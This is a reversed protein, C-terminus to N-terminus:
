RLSREGSEGLCTTTGVAVRHLHHAVYTTAVQPGDCLMARFLHGLVRARMGSSRDAAALIAALVARRPRPFSARIAGDPLEIGMRGAIHEMAFGFARGVRFRATRDAVVQWDVEPHAFLLAKVDQLWALRAFLHGAAHLVLFLLEDEAALVRCAHGAATQYPQARALFEESPIVVGFDAILRFHLEVPPWDRRVFTLHHQHKWRQRAAPDAEGQYGLGTLAASAAAVQGPAVMLDLDNSPRLAPDGHLRAGLVPGKLPVVDVRAAALAPLIEDLARQFCSQTLRLVAARRLLTRLIGPPLGPPGTTLAAALSGLVGSREARTLLTSWDSVTAGSQELRASAKPFSELLCEVVHEV